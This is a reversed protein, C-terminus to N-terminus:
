FESGRRVGGGDVGLNVGLVVLARSPSDLNKEKMVGFIEKTTVSLEHTTM